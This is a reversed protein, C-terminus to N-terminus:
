LTAEKIKKKRVIKRRDNNIKDTLAKGVNYRYVM